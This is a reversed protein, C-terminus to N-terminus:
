VYRFELCFWGFTNWDVEKESKKQVYWSTDLELHCSWYWSRRYDRCVWIRCPAASQPVVVGWWSSSTIAAFSVSRGQQSRALIPQANQAMKPHNQIIKLWKPFPAFEFHQAYIGKHAFVQLSSCNATRMLMSSHHFFSSLTLSKTWRNRVTPLRCCCPPVWYCSAWALSIWPCPTPRGSIATHPWLNHSVYSKEGLILAFLGLEVPNKLSRAKTKAM